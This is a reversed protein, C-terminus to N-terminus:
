PGQEQFFDDSALRNAFPCKGSGGAEQVAQALQERMAALPKKEGGTAGLAVGMAQVLRSEGPNIVMAIARQCRPCVFHVGVSSGGVDEASRYVLYDECDMCVFKM